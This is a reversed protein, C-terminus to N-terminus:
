VLAYPHWAETFGETFIDYIIRDRVGQPISASM